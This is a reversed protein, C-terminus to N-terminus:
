CSTPWHSPQTLGAQLERPPGFNPPFDPNTTPGPWVPTLDSDKLEILMQWASQLFREVYLPLEVFQAQWYLQRRSFRRVGDLTQGGTCWLTFPYDPTLTDPMDDWDLREIEIDIIGTLSNV